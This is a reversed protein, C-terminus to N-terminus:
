RFFCRSTRIKINYGYPQTQISHLYLLLRACPCIFFLHNEYSEGPRMSDKVFIIFCSTISCIHRCLNDTKQHPINRAIFRPGHSVSPNYLRLCDGIFIQGNASRIPVLTPISFYKSASVRQDLLHCQSIKQTNKYFLHSKKPHFFNAHRRTSRSDRHFTIFILSFLLTWGSFRSDTKSRILLM